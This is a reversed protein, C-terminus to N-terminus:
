TRFRGVMTRLDGALGSLAAAQARVQTSTTDMSQVAEGMTRMDRAIHDTRQSSAAVRENVGGIGQAAQSINSAMERMSVSQEEVASAITSVIREVENLVEGVARIEEEVSRTGTQIEEIRAKIERTSDGTQRALEKIEGAVVAFGKGADGARAAEITANLALLNIQASIDEIAETVADISRAALGLGTMREVATTGRGVAVESIERAKSANIAIESITATMEESSAAVMELNTSAQEMAAAVTQMDESAEEVAEEIRVSLSRSREMERGMADAHGSLDAASDGLSAAHGAVDAVMSRIREAFRNFWAAMEGLVDRTGVELRRTLDGEGEAIDQLMDRTAQIPRTVSRLLFAAILGGAILGSFMAVLLGNRGAAAANDFFGHVRDAVAQVSDRGSRAVVRIEEQLERDRERLVQWQEFGALYQDVLLAMEEGAGPINRAQLLYWEVDDVDSSNTFYYYLAAIRGKLTLTEMDRARAYREIGEAVVNRFIETREEVQDVLIISGVSVKWPEFYRAYAIKREMGGKDGPAPWSYRVFGEEEGRIHELLEVLFSNGTVPDVFMDAHRGELEPVTGHVAFRGRQDLVYFYLGDGFRLSRLAAFARERSMGTEHFYQLLGHAIAVTNRVGEVADNETEQGGTRGVELAIEGAAGSAMSEAVMEIEDSIAGLRETIERNAEKGARMEDAAVRYAGISELVGAIGGGLVGSGGVLQRVALARSEIQDFTEQLLHYHAEDNFLLYDKEHRRADQIHTFIEDGADKIEAYHVVDVLRQYGFIGMFCVLLLLLSIGAVMKLRIGLAKM